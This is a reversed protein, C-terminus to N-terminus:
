HADPRQGRLFRAIMLFTAVIILSCGPVVFSFWPQSTLQIWAMQKAAAEASSNNVQNALAFAGLAFDHAVAYGGVAMRWGIAMGGQSIWGLAAGGYSWLALACGGLAVPGAGLGGMAVVGIAVGGFAIVGRAMGGIAIFGIPSNGIAIWGRAERAGKRAVSPPPWYIHLLPWGLLSARSRYEIPGSLSMTKWFGRPERKPSGAAEEQAHIELLARRSQLVEKLIWGVYLFVLGIMTPPLTAPHERWIAKLGLVLGIQLVMFIAIAALVRKGSRLVFQRQREYTTSEASAKFGIWGGLGGVLAGFIGALMPMAFAAAVKAPAGTKAAAALSAATASTPIAAPLLALVALTFAAGPRSRQLANEVVGAVQQRLMARGRSLRQKVADETLDLAQAVDAASQQERYYLTLVTRYAEPLAEMASWVITEEERAIIERQLNEEARGHAAAQETIEADRRSREAARLALHRAIGCLWAKFKAHDRLDKLQRWASIFAEQAVDESRAFDGCIAYAQACILGQYRSVLQGFADREGHLCRALLDSDSLDSATLTATNM